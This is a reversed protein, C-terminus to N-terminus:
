ASQRAVCLVAAVTYHLTAAGSKLTQSVTTENDDIFDASRTPVQSRDRPDALSPTSLTAGAAVAGFAITVAALRQPIGSGSM